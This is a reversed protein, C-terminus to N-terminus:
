CAYDADLGGLCMVIRDPIELTPLNLSWSRSTEDVVELKLTMAILATVQLGIGHALFNPSAQLVLSELCLLHFPKRMSHHFACHHLTWEISLLMKQTPSSSQFAFFLVKSHKVHPPKSKECAQSSSARPRLCWERLRCQGCLKAKSLNLQFPKWQTHIISGGWSTTYVVGCRSLRKLNQAEEHELCLMIGYYRQYRQCM